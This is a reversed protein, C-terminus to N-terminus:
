ELVKVDDIRLKLYKSYQNERKARAKKRPLSFILDPQRFKISVCYCVLGNKKEGKYTFTPYKLRVSALGGLDRVLKVVGYALKISSSYFVSNGSKTCTGDTDMLGRLLEFRQESSGYFYEEPIFKDKSSVQLGCDRLYNRYQHKKRVSHLGGTLGIYFSIPDSKPTTICLEKPLETKVKDIIESDMSTITLTRSISGDGLIVGLTYPPVQYFQSTYEIIPPLNKYLRGVYSPRSFYEYLEAVKLKRFFSSSKHKFNPSGIEILSNGPLFETRGDRYTIEYYKEFNVDPITKLLVRMSIFAHKESTM